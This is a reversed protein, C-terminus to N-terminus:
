QHLLDVLEDLYKQMCARTETAQKASLETLEKSIGGVIGTDIKVGGVNVSDGSKQIEVHSGKALCFQLIINAADTVKEKTSQDTQGANAALYADVFDDTINYVDRMVADAYKTQSDVWNMQISNARGFTSTNAFIADSSNRKLSLKQRLNLRIGYVYEKAFPNGNIDLKSTSISAM